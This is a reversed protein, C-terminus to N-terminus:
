GSNRIGVRPEQAHFAHVSMISRGDRLIFSIQNNSGAAPEAITAGAVGLFIGAIGFDNVNINISGFQMFVNRSIKPEGTGHLFDQGLQTLLYLLLLM